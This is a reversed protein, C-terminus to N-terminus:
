PLVLLLYLLYAYLFNMDIWEQKGAKFAKNLWKTVIKNDRMWDSIESLMFFIFTLLFLLSTVIITLVIFEIIKTM